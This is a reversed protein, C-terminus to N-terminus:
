ARPTVLPPLPEPVTVLVGAPMLQPGVQEASNVSPVATVSFPTASLPELATTQDPQSETLPEFSHRAVIVAAFATVAVKVSSCCRSFTVLDPVPEPVTVLMGAPMLQPVSHSAAKSWPVATVSFPVGAAPESAATQVPQSEMLPELSHRTVMVAAFATVALKVWAAVGFNVRLTFLSPPAPVTVLVGAPM